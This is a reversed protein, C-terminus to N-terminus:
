RPWTPAGKKGAGAADRARLEAVEAELAALRAATEEAQLRWRARSKTLDAARNRHQKVSAKLQQYKSKWRDRSKRFSWILAGPRSTYNPATPTTEVHTTTADM